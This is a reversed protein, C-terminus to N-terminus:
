IHIFLGLTGRNSGIPPRGWRLPVRRGENQKNKIKQLVTADNM